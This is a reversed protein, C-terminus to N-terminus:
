MDMEKLLKLRRSEMKQRVRDKRQELSMKTNKKVFCKEKNFEKKPSASPDARIAMHVREYMAAIDDPKIGNKIYQSFQRNYAEQDEEMLENMYSAVHEGMIRDRMIGADYKGDVNGVFRKENHPIDLGGDVAGKLAAFVRNGTTTRTLGVDLYCRFPRREGEQEIHFVEGTVKTLGQYDADLGLKQLIRRALLLGTCYAASYNTLGVKLGYRPLEHAYASSLVFDGQVKAYIMQCIIDKNTMRVVLRYKPTDYKNKDQCILRRRAYFDTKGERRRRFQVQLSRFYERNPVPNVFPM